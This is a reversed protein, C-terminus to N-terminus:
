MRCASPRAAPASGRASGWRGPGPRKGPCLPGAASGKTGCGDAGRDSPPQIAFAHWRHWVGRVCRADRIRKKPNGMLVPTHACAVPQDNNRSNAPKQARVRILMASASTWSPATTLRGICRPARKSPLFGGAGPDRSGETPGDAHLPFALQLPPAWCQRQHPPPTVWRVFFIRFQPFGRFESGHQGWGEKFEM